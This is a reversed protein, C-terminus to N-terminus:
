DDMKQLTTGKTALYSVADELGLAAKQLGGWEQKQGMHSLVDWSPKRRVESDPHM